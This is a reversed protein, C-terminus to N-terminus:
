LRGQELIRQLLSYQFAASQELQFGMLEYIQEALNYYANYIKKSKLLQDVSDGDLLLPNQQTQDQLLQELTNLFATQVDPTLTQSM